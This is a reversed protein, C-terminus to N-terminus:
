SIVGVGLGYYGGLTARTPHSFSVLFVDNRVSADHARVTVNVVATTQGAAFTVTGSIQNYDVGPRANVTPPSSVTTYQVTTTTASAASLVVPIHMTVTGSGPKTATGVGPVITPAGPMVPNSWASQVGAAGGRLPV